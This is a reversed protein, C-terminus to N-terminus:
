LGSTENCYITTEPSSNISVTYSGVDFDTDFAVTRIEGSALTISRSKRVSGDVILKATTSASGSLAVYEVQASITVTEGPFPNLDDASISTYAFAGSSGEDEAGNDIDGLQSFEIRTGKVEVTGKPVSVGAESTGASEFVRVGAGTDSTESGSSSDNLIETLGDVSSLVNERFEDFDAYNNEIQDIINSAEDATFGLENVLYDEFDAFSDFASFNDKTSSDLTNGYAAKLDDVANSADTSSLGNDELYTQFASWDASGMVQRDMAQVSTFVTKLDDVTTQASSSSVGNNELETQFSDWDSHTGSDSSFTANANFKDKLLQIHQDAQVNSLGNNTLFTRYEDYDTKSLTGDTNNKYDTFSAFNDELVQVTNTIDSDSVDSIESYESKLNSELESFGSQNRLFDKYSNFGNLEGRIDAIESALESVMGALSRVGAWIEKTKPELQPM